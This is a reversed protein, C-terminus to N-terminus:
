KHLVVRAERSANAYYIFQRGVSVFNRPNGERASYACGFGTFAGSCDASGESEVLVEIGYEAPVIGLLAEGALAGSDNVNGSVYLEAIANILSANLASTENALLIRNAEPYRPNGELSSLTTERLAAMAGVALDQGGPVAPGPSNLLTLVLPVSSLLLALAFLADMTLAIGKRCKLKDPEDL